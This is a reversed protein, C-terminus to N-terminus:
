AAIPPILTNDSLYSCGRLAYADMDRPDLNVYPDLFAHGERGFRPGWSNTIGVLVRGGVIKFRGDTAMCHGGGGWSARAPVCGDADLNGLNTGVYMGFVVPFGLQVATIFDDITELHWADLLRYNKATEFASPPIRSRWIQHEPCESALCIGTDQLTRVCAAIQAGRDVNGNNLAYLFTPSFEVFPQGTQLWLLTFANMTGHGTCSGQPSQNTMPLPWDPALERWESRPVTGFTPGFKPLNGYDTPPLVGCYQREGEFEIYPLEDSM